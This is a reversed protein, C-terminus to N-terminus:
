FPSIKRMVPLGGSGMSYFSVKVKVGKRLLHWVWGQEAQSLSAVCIGDPINFYDEIGKSELTIGDLGGDNSNINLSVVKGTYPEEKYNKDIPMFNIAILKDQKKSLEITTNTCEAHIDFAFTLLLVIMLLKKM